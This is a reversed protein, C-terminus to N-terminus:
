VNAAAMDASAAPFRFPAAASGPRPHSAAKDRNSSNTDIHHTTNTESANRSCAEEDLRCWVDNAFTCTRQIELIRAQAQHHYHTLPLCFLSPAFAHQSLQYVRTTVVIVKPIIQVRGSPAEASSSYHMTLQAAYIRRFDQRQQQQATAATPTPQHPATPPLPATNTTTTTRFFLNSPIRWRRKSGSHPLM